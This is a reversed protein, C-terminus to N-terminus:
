QSHAAACHVPVTVAHELRRVESVQAICLPQEQCYYWLLLTAQGPRVLPGTLGSAGTSVVVCLAFADCTDCSAAISDALMVRVTADM